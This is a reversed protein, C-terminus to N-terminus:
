PSVSLSVAPRRGELLHRFAHLAQPYHGEHWDDLAGQYIEDPASAHLMDHMGDEQALASASTFLILLLPLTLSRVANM